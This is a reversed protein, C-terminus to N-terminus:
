VHYPTEQLLTTQFYDTFDQIVKELTLQKTQEFDSLQAMALNEYGCPNIFHFPSLEGSINLCIGHYSCNKRVRIGISAIKKIETEGPLQVYVGPANAQTFSPIRYQKLLAIISQELYNVYSKPDFGYKKLNLLLYIMLQGPGHYTVQGGRDSQVVPINHKNSLIHEPKGAQGQTFVPAHELFWIQDPVPSEPHRAHTYDRMQAWTSDYPQLGTFTKFILGSNSM